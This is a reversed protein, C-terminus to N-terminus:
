GMAKLPTKCIQTNLNECLPVFLDNDFEHSNDVVFKNGCLLYEYKLSKRLLAIGISM